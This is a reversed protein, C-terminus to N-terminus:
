IHPESSRTLVPSLCEGEKAVRIASILRRKEGKNISVRKIGEHGQLLLSPYYMFLVQKKYLNLMFLFIWCFIDTEDNLSTRGYSGNTVSPITLTHLARPEIDAYLLIFIAQTM